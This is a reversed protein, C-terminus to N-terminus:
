ETMIESKAQDVLREMEARIESEGKPMGAAEFDAMLKRVVDADGPEDFDAVVVEQAYGARESEPRGMVEAAWLGLLKNRRAIVRFQLQQDHVYKKEAEDKRDDFTTM